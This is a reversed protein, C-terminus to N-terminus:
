ILQANLLYRHTDILATIIYLHRECSSLESCSSNKIGASAILTTLSLVQLFTFNIVGRLCYGHWYQGYQNSGAHHLRWMIAARSPCPPVSDVNWDATEKEWGCLEVIFAWGCECHLGEISVDSINKQPLFSGNSKFHGIEPGVLSFYVLRFYFIM